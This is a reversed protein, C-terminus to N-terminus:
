RFCLCCIFSCKVQAIRFCANNLRTDQDKACSDERAPEPDRTPEVLVVHELANAGAQGIEGYVQANRRSVIRSFWLFEPAHNEVMNQNLITASENEPSNVTGALRPASPGLLGFLGRM